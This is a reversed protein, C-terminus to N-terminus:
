RVALPALSGLRSDRFNEDRVAGVIRAGGFRVQAAAIKRNKSAVAIILCPVNSPRLAIM